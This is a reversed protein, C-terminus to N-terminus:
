CIFRKGIVPTWFLTIWPVARTLDKGTQKHLQIEHRTWGILGKGALARSKKWNQFLVKSGTVMPTFSDKVKQYLSRPKPSLQNWRKQFSYNERKPVVTSYKAAHVFM